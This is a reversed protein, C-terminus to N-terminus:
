IDPYGPRFLFSRRARSSCSRGSRCSSWIMRAASLEEGRVPDVAHGQALDVSRRTLAVGACDLVVEAVAVPQDPRQDVLVPAVGLRAAM